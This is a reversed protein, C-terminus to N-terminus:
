DPVKVQDPHALQWEIVRSNLARIGALHEPSSGLNACIEWYADLLEPLARDKVRFLIWEGDPVVEDNDFKRVFGTYKADIM